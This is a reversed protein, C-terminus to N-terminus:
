DIKRVASGFMCKIQWQHWLRKDYLKAIAAVRKSAKKGHDPFAVIHLKV